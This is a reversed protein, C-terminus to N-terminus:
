GDAFVGAFIAPVYDDILPTTSLTSTPHTSRLHATVLIEQSPNKGGHVHIEFM